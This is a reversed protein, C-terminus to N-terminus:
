SEKSKQYYLYGAVGVILIGIGVYGWPNNSPPIVPEIIEQTIEYVASEGSNEWEIGNFYSVMAEMKYVGYISPTTMNFSYDNSGSGDLTDQTEVIVNGSNPDTVILVIDTEEDFDYSVTVELQYNENLGLTEPLLVEEIEANYEFLSTVTGMVELTMNQVAGMGLNYWNGEIFYYVNAEFEHSGSIGPAPFELIYSSEGTGTVQAFDNVVWDELERSYIGPSIEVEEDFLYGITVNVSVIEGPNIDSEYRVDQVWAGSLQASTHPIVLFSVIIVLILVKKM